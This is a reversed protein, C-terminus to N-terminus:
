NTGKRSYIQQWDEIVSVPYWGESLDNTLDKLWVLKIGDESTRDTILHARGNTPNKVVDGVRVKKNAEIAKM